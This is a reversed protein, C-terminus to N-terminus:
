FLSKIFSVAAGVAIVIGLIMCLFRFIKRERASKIKVIGPVYLWLALGLAICFLTGIM